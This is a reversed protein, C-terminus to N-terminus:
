INPPEFTKNQHNKAFKSPQFKGFVFNLTDSAEFIATTSSRFDESNIERLIQTSSVEFITVDVFNSVSSTIPSSTQKALEELILVKALDQIANRITLAFHLQNSGCSFGWSIKNYIM